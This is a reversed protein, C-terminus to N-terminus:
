VHNKLRMFIHTCAFFWGWKVGNPKTQGTQGKQGLKAGYPGKQGRKLGNSGTQVRKVRNPMMQCWKAGNPGSQGWKARNPWEEIKIELCKLTGIRWPARSDLQSLLILHKYYERIFLFSYVYVNCIILKSWFLILLRNETNWCILYYRKCLKYSIFTWLQSYFTNM